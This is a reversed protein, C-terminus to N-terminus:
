PATQSGNKNDSGQNADVYVNATELSGNVSAQSWGLAPLGAAM